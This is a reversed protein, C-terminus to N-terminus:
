YGLNKNINLCVFNFQLNSFSKENIKQWNSNKSYNYSIIKQSTESYLTTDILNYQKTDCNIQWNSILYKFRPQNSPYTFLNPYIIVKREKYNAIKNNNNNQQYTISSSDIEDVLLGNKTTGLYRWNTGSGGPTYTKQGKGFEAPIGISKSSSFWNFIGCSNLFLCLYLLFILYLLSSFPKM